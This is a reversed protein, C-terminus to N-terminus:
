GPMKLGKRFYTDLRLETVDVLRVLFRDELQNLIARAQRIMEKSVTYTDRVRQPDNRLLRATQKPDKLNLRQEAGLTVYSYHGAALDGELDQWDDIMQIAAGFLLFVEWYADIQGSKGLRELSLMYPTVANAGKTGLDKPNDRQYPSIKGRAAKEKIEARLFLTRMRHMIDANVKSLGFISLALTEYEAILMQAVLIEVPSPTNSDVNVDLIGYGAVAYVGARLIEGFQDVLDTLGEEDMWVALFAFVPYADKFYQLRNSKWQTVDVGLPASFDRLISRAETDLGQFAALLGIDVQLHQWWASLSFENALFPAMVAAWFAEKDRQYVQLIAPAFRDFASKTEM